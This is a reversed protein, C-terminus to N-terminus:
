RRASTGRASPASRPTPNQPINILAYDQAPSGFVCEPRDWAPSAPLEAAAALACSDAAIQAKKGNVWWYGVDIVIACFLLMFPLLVVSRAWSAEPSTGLGGGFSIDRTGVGALAMLSACTWM